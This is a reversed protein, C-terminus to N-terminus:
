AGFVIESQRNIKGGCNPCIDCTCPREAKKQREVEYRKLLEELAKKEKETSPNSM